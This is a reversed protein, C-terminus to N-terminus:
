VEMKKISILDSIFPKQIQMLWPMNTNENTFWPWHTSGFGQSFTVGLVQKEQCYITVCVWMSHGLCGDQIQWVPERLNYNGPCVPVKQTVVINVLKRWQVPDCGTADCPLSEVLM